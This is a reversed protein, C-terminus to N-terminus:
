LILFIKVQGVLVGGGGRGSIQTKYKSLDTDLPVYVPVSSLYSVKQM